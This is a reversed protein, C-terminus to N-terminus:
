TLRAVHPSGVPLLLAKRNITLMASERVVRFAHPDRLLLMPDVKDVRTKVRKDTPRKWFLSSNTPRYRSIDVSFKNEADTGDLTRLM